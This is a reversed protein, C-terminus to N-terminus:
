SSEGKVLAAVAVHHQHRQWGVKCVPDTPPKGCYDCLGAKRQRERRRLEASLVHDEYEDLDKPYSM